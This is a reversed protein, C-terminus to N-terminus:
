CPRPGCSGGSDCPSYWHNALFSGLVAGGAAHVLCGAFTVGMRVLPAPRIARACGLALGGAAGAAGAMSAEHKRALCDRLCQNWHWLDGPCYDDGATRQGGDLSVPRIAPAAANDLAARQRRSDRGPNGGIYHAWPSYGGWDSTPVFEADYTISGGDHYSEFYYTGCVHYPDCHWEWEILLAGGIDFAQAQTRTVRAGRRARFAVVRDTKKWGRAEKTKIAAEWARRDKSIVKEELLRWAEVGVLREVNADSEPVRAQLGGGGRPASPTQAPTASQLGGLPQMFLVVMVLVSWGKICRKRTM